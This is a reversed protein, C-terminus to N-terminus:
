NRELGLHNEAAELPEGIGCHLNKPKIGLIGVRRPHHACDQGNRWECDTRWDHHLVILPHVVIQRVFQNINHTAVLDETLLDITSLAAIDNLLAGLEELKIYGGVDIVIDLTHSRGSLARTPRELRQLRTQTSLRTAHATVEHALTYVEGGTGDNCGIGVDIHVLQTNGLLNCGVKGLGLNDRRVVAIAQHRGDLVAHLIRTGFCHEQLLCTARDGELIHISFKDIEVLAIDHVAVHDIAVIDQEIPLRRQVLTRHLAM